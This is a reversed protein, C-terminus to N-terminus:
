QLLEQLSLLSLNIDLQQPLSLENTHAGQSVDGSGLLEESCRLLCEIQKLGSRVQKVNLQCSFVFTVHIEKEVIYLVVM